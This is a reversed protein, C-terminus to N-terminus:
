RRKLQKEEIAVLCSNLFTESSKKTFGTKQAIRNILDSKTTM